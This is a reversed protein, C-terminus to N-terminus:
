KSCSFLCSERSSPAHTYHYATLVSFQALYNSVDGVGGYCDGQGGGGGGGGSGGDGDGHNDGDRTRDDDIDSDGDSFSWLRM